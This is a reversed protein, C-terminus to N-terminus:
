LIVELGKAHRCAPYATCSLFVGRRGRVEKMTSGCNPCTLVEPLPELSDIYIQVWEAEIPRMGSCHPYNNCGLFYGYRGRRVEMRSNCERCRINGLLEALRGVSEGSSITLLSSIFSATDPLDLQLALHRGPSPLNSELYTLDVYVKSDDIIVMNTKGLSSQLVKSSFPLQQLKHNLRKPSIIRPNAKSHIAVEINLNESSRFMAQVLPNTETIQAIRNIIGPIAGNGDTFVGITQKALLASQLVDQFFAKGHLMTGFSFPHGTILKSADIAPLTNFAHLLINGPDLKSTLWAKNAVIILKERARTIAVNLLRMALSDHGGKLLQGADRMGTSDVTDLVIVQRESGQFRHVTSCAIKDGLGLELAMRNTLRGQLNYPTIIGVNKSGTIEAISIDLLATSSTSSQM